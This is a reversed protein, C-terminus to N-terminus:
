EDKEGTVDKLIDGAAKKAEEAKDELQEQAETGETKAKQAEDEAQQELTAQEPPEKSGCGALGWSVVAVLVAAMWCKWM